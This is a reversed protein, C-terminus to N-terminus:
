FEKYHSPCDKLMKKNSTQNLIIMVLVNKRWSSNGEAM